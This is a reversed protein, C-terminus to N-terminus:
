LEDNSLSSLKSYEEKIKDVLPQILKIDRDSKSGFIKNLFGLM